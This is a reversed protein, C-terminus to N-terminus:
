GLLLGSWPWIRKRLELAKNGIEEIAQEWSLKKWRGGELKMPYKLRRESHGHERLAPVKACHGGANFPSRFYPESRDM